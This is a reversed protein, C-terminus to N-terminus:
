KRSQERMKRLDFVTYVGDKKSHLATHCNPCVPVLDNVPDVIYEKGIQNLPVIHHVEIRGAFEPGYVKGFDMGCVVCATGNAAICAERAKKSREYKNLTVHKLGGEQFLTDVTQNYKMAENLREEFCPMDKEILYDFDELLKNTNGDGRTLNWSKLVIDSSEKARVIGLSNFLREKQSLQSEKVSTQSLVCNVVFSDTDNNIEYMVCDGTKWKGEESEEISFMKRFFPTTFRIVREQTCWAVRFILHENHACKDIIINAILRQQIQQKFRDMYSDDRKM